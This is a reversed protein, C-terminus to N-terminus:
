IFLKKKLKTAVSSLHCCKFRQQNPLSIKSQASFEGSIDTPIETIIAKIYFIYLVSKLQM